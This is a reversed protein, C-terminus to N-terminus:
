PKKRFPQANWETANNSPIIFEENDLPINLQVRTLQTTEVTVIKSMVTTTTTTSPIFLSDGVNIYAPFLTQNVLVNQKDFYEVARITWTEPAIGILIYNYQQPNVPTALIIINGEYFDTIRFTFGREMLKLINGFIPGPGLVYKELDSLDRTDTYYGKNDEPFFIRYTKGDYGTYQPTDKEFRVIKRDPKQIAFSGSFFKADDNGSELFRTIIGSASFVRNYTKNVNEIVDEANIGAPETAGARCSFGYIIVLFSIFSLWVAESYLRNFRKM